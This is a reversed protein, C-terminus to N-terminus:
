VGLDGRMEEMEYLTTYRGDFTESIDSAIDLSYERLEKIGNFGVNSVFDSEVLNDLILKVAKVALTQNNTM